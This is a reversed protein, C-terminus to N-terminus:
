VIMDTFLLNSNNGYSNKIYDYYLEYLLVKSLDLICVEIYAPKKLLLAVKKKLIAGLNNNFIKHLM